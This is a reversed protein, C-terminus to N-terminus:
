RGREKPSFLCFSGQRQCGQQLKWKQCQSCLVWYDRLWIECFLSFFVWCFLESFGTLIQSVLHWDFIGIHLLPVQAFVCVEISKIRSSQLWILFWVIKAYVRIEKNQMEVDQLRPPPCEQRVGDGCNTYVCHVWVPLSNEMLAEFDIYVMILSAGLHQIDKIIIAPSSCRRRVHMLLAPSRIAARKAGESMAAKSWVHFFFFEGLHPLFYILFSVCGCGWGRNRRKKPTEKSCHCWCKKLWRVHVNVFSNPCHCIPSRTRPLQMCYAATHDSRPM